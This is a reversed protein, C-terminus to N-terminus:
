QWGSITKGLEDIKSGLCDRIHDRARMYHSRLTAEKIGGMRASIEAFSLDLQRRM